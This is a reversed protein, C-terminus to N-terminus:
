AILEYDKYSIYSCEDALFIHVDPVIFGGPPPPKDVPIDGYDPMKYVDEEQDAEHEKFYDEWMKHKKMLEAADLDEEEESEYADYEIVKVELGM